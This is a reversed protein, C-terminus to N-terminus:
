PPVSSSKYRMFLCKNGCWSLLPPISLLFSKSGELDRTACSSTMGQVTSPDVAIRLSVVIPLDVGFVLTFPENQLDPHEQKDADSFIAKATLVHQFLDM